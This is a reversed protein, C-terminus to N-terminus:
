KIIAKIAQESLKKRFSSNETSIKSPMKLTISVNEM